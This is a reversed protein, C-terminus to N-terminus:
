VYICCRIVDSLRVVDVKTASEQVNCCEVPIDINQRM